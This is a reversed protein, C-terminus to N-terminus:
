GTLAYRHLVEFAGDPREGVLTLADICFPAPLAPLVSALHARWQALAAPPLKGSLTLHFRFAELVYPYGWALLNADEEPTLNAARRRAIEEASAAARFSDLERVCAGALTALAGVDGCPTLALFGGLCTLELGACCAPAHRAAFAGMAEQLGTLDQGEALRFPPKLTGHFGYKRPAATIEALGPLAPQAVPVGRVVDWGLWDGGFTALVGPVPVFYVAYRTYSM